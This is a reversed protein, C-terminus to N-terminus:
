IRKILFGNNILFNPAVEFADLNFTFPFLQCNPHLQYLQIYFTLQRLFFFVEFRRPM